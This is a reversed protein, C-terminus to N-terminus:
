TKLLIEFFNGYLTGWEPHTVETLLREKLKGASLPRDLCDFINYFSVTELFRQASQEKDTWFPPHLSLYICLDKRASLEILDEHILSEAGEIDIKIFNYNEINDKEIYTCLKSSAIQWNNGKISSASSTNAENKSGGFNVLTNDRDTICINELNMNNLLQNQKIITKLLDCTLPNAEVAWIRRAGIERAFFCTIGVWCGIDIYDKDARLYNKFIDYTHPEWFSEKYQKWFWHQKVKFQLNNVAIFDIDTEESLM